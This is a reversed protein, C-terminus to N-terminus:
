AVAARTPPALPKPPAVPEVPRRLVVAAVQTRNELELKNLIHAVHNAVTGKEIVLAQAIQSNTLGRSILWAIESERKTLRSVLATEVKDATNAQEAAVSALFPQVPAMRLSQRLPRRGAMLLQACRFTYVAQQYTTLARRWSTMGNEQAM